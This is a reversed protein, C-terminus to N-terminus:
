TTLHSKTSREQPQATAGLLCTIKVTAGARDPIEV